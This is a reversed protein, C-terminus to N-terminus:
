LDDLRRRLDREQQEEEDEQEDEDAQQPLRDPPPRGPDERRRRTDDEQEAEDEQPEAEDDPEDVEDPQDPEAPEDPEDPEDPEEAEDVPDPQDPEDPEDSPEPDDDPREGSDGGPTGTPEAEDDEDSSDDAAALTPEDDDEEDDQQADGDDDQKEAEERAEAVAGAAEDTAEEDTAEEDAPEDEDQPEEAQAVAEEPEEDNLVFHYGIVGLVMTFVVFMLAGLGLVAPHMLVSRKSGVADGTQTPQAGSGPRWETQPEDADGDEVPSASRGTTVAHGDTPTAEAAMTDAVAIREKDAQSREGTGDLEGSDGRPQEVDGTSVSKLEDSLGNTGGEDLDPMDVPNLIWPDFAQDDDADLRVPPLKLELRLEDIRDRVERASTPRNAPQKKMLEAVLGSLENPIKGAPTVEAIRPAPKQVHSMLVQLSTEGEFPPRGTLMEFLMVGLAYLDSRGDLEDDGQAQEPSMYSPTGCIMGTKTLQTNSELTRAIGFDLVKVQLTGDSIPMMVLNEPKLDRHVIGRAHPETLAGCIQYIVELALSTELRGKELLDGLDTGEVLEMVLYLLDLDEDQGFDVLRVINPHSLESVLKAERFFRELMVERDVLEPRLVKIAVERQVSLQTGRYVAGMGGTGILDKIRFRDDVLTDILPDGEDEPSDLRFLRSGDDPCLEYEEGEYRTECEPCYYKM